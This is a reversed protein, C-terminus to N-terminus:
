TDRFPPLCTYAARRGVGRGARTGTRNDVRRACPTSMQVRAASGAGRSPSRAGGILKKDRNAVDAGRVGTLLTAPRERAPINAAGGPARAGEM